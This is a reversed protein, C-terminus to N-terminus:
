YRAQRGSPSKTSRELCKWQRTFGVNFNLMESNFDSSCKACDSKKVKKEGQVVDMRTSIVSFTKYANARLYRDHNKKRKWHFLSYRKRMISYQLPPSRDLNICVRLRSGSFTALRNRWCSPLKQASFHHKKLHSLFKQLKHSIKRIKGPTFLALFSWQINQQFTKFM